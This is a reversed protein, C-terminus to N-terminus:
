LSTMILQEVIFHVPGHQRYLRRCMKSDLQVRAPLMTLGFSTNISQMRGSVPRMPAIALNNGRCSHAHLCGSNCTTPDRGSVTTSLKKM